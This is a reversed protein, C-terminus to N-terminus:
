ASSIAPHKTNRCFRADTASGTDSLPGVFLAEREEPLQETLTGGM